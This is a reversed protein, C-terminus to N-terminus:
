TELLDPQLCHIRLAENTPFYQRQKTPEEQLASKKGKTSQLLDQKVSMFRTM